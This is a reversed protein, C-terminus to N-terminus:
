KGPLFCVFDNEGNASFFAAADNLGMKETHSDASGPNILCSINYQDYGYIIASNGGGLYASVPYGIHVFYLVQNLGCGRADIIRMGDSSIVTGQSLESLYRTISPVYNQVDKINRVSDRNARVWIVRGDKDTVLGMGDYAAQVARNFSVYAGNMRGSSFAYYSEPKQARNAKLEVINDEEAVVKKPVHNKINQMKEEINDLQVFYLRGEDPSAIYGIGALRDPTVQENCVLTDEETKTYELGTNTMKMLHVRSDQISVDTIYIGSKEYRTQVTMDTGAIELAYLPIGVTRGNSTLLEGEKALGYVLDNEVFGVLQIVDTAPAKVEKKSGNKLDMVNLVASNYLKDEEQWAIHSLDSSAAFNEETLGDAVVMFEKSTLDVGYVTHNMLLYLVQTDSLYSLKGLDQRLSWYDEDAPLYMRETLTNGGSEYHYVAIGTSGEHNGRNMYGYVIFDIAGTESVSLIKIGHNEFNARIDEESKRFAFVKTSSEKEVDYCWLTRNAVFAKYKGSSDSVQSLEESDSIGLMIRKNSYLDDDGSFIQNMHRDYDMMYIRQANWKMTFTESVDFYDKDGNEKARSAVYNMQVVGMIGQMDKLTVFIEGEREMAMNKFTLQSFSNKLTVRGLSSNDATQETELYTTLEKATEYDMTKSSFDEALAIMENIYSNDSWVIRTYYYVAPHNDTAIALTMLYEEEKTLLNQIPLAADVKGESQNWQELVTREVLEEGDLSRIEYQIGKVKGNVAHFSVGLQRDEPLVTLNERGTSEPKDEVYGYLCNVNRGFMQMYVVPLNADEIATYAVDDKQGRRSMIFYSVLALLFIVALIFIRRVGKRM